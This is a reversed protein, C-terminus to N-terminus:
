PTYLPKGGTRRYRSNLLLYIVEQSVALVLGGSVLGIMIILGRLYTPSDDARFIQTGALLGCIASMVWMSIAISREATDRCNLQVWVNHVPHYCVAFANVVTWMGFRNWKPAYPLVCRAVILVALYCCIATIVTLGRKKTRDSVWAFFFVIPLTMFAGIASLANAQVRTFGLSMIISPTYTTLPSWTAFVCATSVFHPWRRYNLLTKRVTSFPIGSRLSHTSPSSEHGLRATLIHQERDSFRILGNFFLPKPRQPSTPLVLLLLLAVIMTAIGEILFIYQWGSLSGQGHLRLIGAGILPSIANGGFMGFFLIAVRRGLEQPTYWTSLTYISGPIYGAEALGLLMRTALFGGRNRLLVQLTAILGFVFVQAPIWKSPGIKQLLMNSPIELVIIGLFMLQNGLNITNQNVGIDDAFGGTLASAVNMRDLQFMIMGFTLLPLVSFDIKIRARSEEAVTWDQGVAVDSEYQSSEIKPSEISM